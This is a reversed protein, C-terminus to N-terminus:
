VPSPGLKRNSFLAQFLITQLTQADVGEDFAGDARDGADLYEQAVIIMAEGLSGDIRRDFGTRYRRAAVVAGVAPQVTLVLGRIRHALRNGAAALAARVVLGGMSHTVFIVQQSGVETDLVRDVF